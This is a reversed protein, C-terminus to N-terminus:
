NSKFNNDKYREYLHAKRPFTFPKLKWTFLSEHYEIDVYDFLTYLVSPLTM